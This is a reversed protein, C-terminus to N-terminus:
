SNSFVGEDGLVQEGSAAWDGDHQPERWIRRGPDGPLEMSEVPGRVIGGVVLARSVAKRVGSSSAFPSPAREPNHRGCTVSEWMESLLEIACWRESHRCVSVLLEPGIATYVGVLASSSRAGLVGRLIAKIVEMRSWPARSNRPCSTLM